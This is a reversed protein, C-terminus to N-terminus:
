SLSALQIPAVTNGLSDDCTANRVRKVEPGFIADIDDAMNWLPVTSIDSM